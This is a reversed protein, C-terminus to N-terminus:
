QFRGASIMRNFLVYPSVWAVLDDFESGPVSSPPHLVFKDDGNQNAAEDAGAPAPNTGGSVNFAGDGNKGHSVVVAPLHSAIVTTCAADECARMSVASSAATKLTFGTKGNSYDKLVRYRFRNGWADERGVGLDSWPLRGEDNFCEGAANRNESGDGDTDPCPLYPNEGVTSRNSAAYGLLAETIDSLQRQTERIDQLDRQASLPVLMGGVLLAVIVLVITLEALTFGKCGSYRITTM